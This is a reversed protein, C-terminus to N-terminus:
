LSITLILPMHDSQHLWEGPDGIILEYSRSLAQSVFAFDLHYPKAMNRYMFQTPTVEQGQREGRLTHYASVLGLRELKEVLGSHSRERYLRDWISNSNFDGMIIVQPLALFASYHDVAQHTVRVYRMRQDKVCAWLGLIHLPVDDVRLPLFWPWEGTYSGDIHYEHSAFGIIAMGKHKNSGVWYKCPAETNEIDKASCEQLVLIDPKLSMVADRKKAFGM